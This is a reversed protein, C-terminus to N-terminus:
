RRTQPGPVHVGCLELGLKSLAGHALAFVRGTHRMGPESPAARATRLAAKHEEAFPFVPGVFKNAAFWGSSSSTCFRCL